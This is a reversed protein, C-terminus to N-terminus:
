VLIDIKKCIVIILDIGASCYIFLGDYWYELIYYLNLFLHLLPLSFSLSLSIMDIIFWKCQTNNHILHTLLFYFYIIYNFHLKTKHVIEIFRLKLLM